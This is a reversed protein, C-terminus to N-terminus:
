AGPRGATTTRREGAAAAALALCLVLVAAVPQAVTGLTARLDASRDVVVVNELGAGLLVVGVALWAGVVAMRPRLTPAGVCAIVVAVVFVLEAVRLGGTQQLVGGPAAGVSSGSPATGFAIGSLAGVVLGASGFAPRRADFRGDDDMVTAGWSVYAAVLALVSAIAGALAVVLGSGVSYAGVAVAQGPVPLDISTRAGTDTLWLWHVAAGVGLGGAAGVVALGLRPLRGMACATGATVIVLAAPLWGIVGIAGLGGGIRKAGATGLPLLPRVIMAIGAVAGLAGAARALPPTRGVVLSDSRLGNGPPPAATGDRAGHGTASGSDPDRDVPGRDVARSRGAPTRYATLGSRSVQM